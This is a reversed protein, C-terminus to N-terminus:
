VWFATTTMVKATQRMLFKLPKPLPAGGAKVAMTAHRGEDIRMQHLIARSKEDTVPLSQLHHDIHKVVQRETEAVFGLSWKDGAAGALAGIGLSGLYWLPSLYSTHSGLEKLRTECWELHDNEEMAAREMKDRVDPLRATMAQGQYLAQAAVEGAHNVRMLGASLKREEASLDAEELGRAPPRRETVRPRGFVTRLGQDFNILLHDFPTYHRM